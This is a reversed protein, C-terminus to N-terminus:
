TIIYDILFQGVIPGPIAMVFLKFSGNFPQASCVLADMEAEDPPHGSFGAADQWANIKSSTSVNSDTIVVFTSYVPTQGVDIMVKNSSVSGGGSNSFDYLPM